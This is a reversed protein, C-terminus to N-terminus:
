AGESPASSAPQTSACECQVQVPDPDGCCEQHGKGCCQAEVYWGNGDCKPCVSKPEEDM